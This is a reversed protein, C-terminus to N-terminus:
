NAILSPNKMIIVAADFMAVFNKMNQMADPSRALTWVDHSGIHNISADLQKEGYEYAVVSLMWNNFLKHNSQLYSLAAQTSLTANLRDDRQGNIILDFNRATQPIIQWIGAALVPNKSQDLNRYGSEVLPVALLEDPLNEKTLASQIIPEYKKMRELSENMFLRAQASDRINNIEDVVEPTASIQFQSDLHSKQIITELQLATIPGSSTKSNLAYATSVAACFSLAYVGLILTKNAKSKKCSRYNFLMTIRRYLVSQSLGQMGLALECSLESATNLLCQAYHEPSTKQRLVIVEDCSFEQLEDLFNIWLKIFPNWFCTIKILMLMHLWRTDGQRIHQLEHRLAIKLDQNKELLPSPLAIYHNKIGVWCFPAQIEQNFLIKIHNINHLQFSNKKIKNLIKINKMYRLAYFLVGLLLFGIIILNVPLSSHTPLVHISPSHIVHYHQLFTISSNRVIPELRFSSNYLNPVALLVIPMLFFAALGVVFIYRGLTLRQSQALNLKLYKIGLVARAILYAVAIVGNLEIYQILM